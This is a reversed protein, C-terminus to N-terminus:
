APVEQKLISNVTARSVGYAKALASVTTGATHAAVIALRAKQTTKRPRGLTKGEARAHALGAKTRELLLDREMEAVAALMTLLMRGAPATLNLKGLQLVLVDVPPEGLGRITTLFNESGGAIIPRGAPERTPSAASTVSM